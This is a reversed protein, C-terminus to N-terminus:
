SRPAPAITALGEGCAAPECALYYYLGRLDAFEVPDEDLTAIRAPEGGYCPVLALLPAAGHHGGRAGVSTVEIRRTSADAHVSVPRDGITTSVTRSTRDLAGASGVGSGSAASLVLDETLISVAHRKLAVLVPSEIRGDLAALWRRLRESGHRELVPGPLRALASRMVEAIEWRKTSMVYADFTERPLEPATGYIRSWDFKKVVSLEARGDDEHLDDATVAVTQLTTKMNEYHFNVPGFQINARDRSLRRQMQERSRMPYHRLNFVDPHRSGEAKNHNFWRINTASARWSRIKVAGHRALSYYRLRQSPRLESPDDRETLWYVVDNFEIWSYPSAVAEALYEHYPRARTPGELIEDQDPWSIWDYDASVDRMLHRSMLPYLDYFDVERSIDTLERLHPRYRELVEATGDTSGHNWVVIDHNNELLHDICDPLIDADNYCLLVGLFRPKPM